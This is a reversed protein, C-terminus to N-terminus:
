KKDSGHFKVSSVFKEFNAQEREAVDAQAKLAFIWNVGDHPVVIATIARRPNSDVPGLLRVLHSSQGDVEYPQAAAKLESDSAPPLGLQGRWRNVNAAIGGAAEPLPTVTVEPRPSNNSVAFAVVAFTPLAASKWGGPDTFTFPLASGDATDTSGSRTDPIAQATLSPHGPENPSGNAASAMQPRQSSVDGAVTPHVPPLRGSM